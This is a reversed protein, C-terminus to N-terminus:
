FTTIARGFPSKARASSDVYEVQALLSPAPLLCGAAVFPLLLQKM